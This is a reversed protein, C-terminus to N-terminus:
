HTKRLNREHVKKKKKAAQKNFYFSGATHSKRSLLFGLM